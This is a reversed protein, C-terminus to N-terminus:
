FMHLTVRGPDKKLTLNHDHSPSFHQGPEDMNSSQTCDTEGSKYDLLCVYYPKAKSM